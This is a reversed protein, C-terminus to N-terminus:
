RWILPEYCAGIMTLTSLSLDAIWLRRPLPAWLALFGRFLTQMALWTGVWCAAPHMVVADQGRGHMLLILARTLGCGPCRNGTVWKHLCLSPYQRDWLLFGKAWDERAAPMEALYLLLLLIALMAFLSM